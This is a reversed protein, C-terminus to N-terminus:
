FTRSTDTGWVWWTALQPCCLHRKFAKKRGRLCLQDLQELVEFTRSVGGAGTNRVTGISSTAVSRTYALRKEMWVAPDLFREMCFYRFVPRFNKCVDSYAQLKEDFGAAAQPSRCCLQLVPGAGVRRRHLLPEVMMKRRCSLNSWDQPRFRKHAGQDPDVLFQGIPVTGSCWELVGSRQSFPVVQPSCVFTSVLAEGGSRWGAKQKWHLPVPLVKYRRINLKRKRTDANRQLLMSCMAFVQQMVADQRLDDKGQERRSPCTLPSRPPSPVLLAQSTNM